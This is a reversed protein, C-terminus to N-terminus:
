GKRLPLFEAKPPFKRPFALLSAPSDCTFRMFITERPFIEFARLIYARHREAAPLTIEGALFEEYLPTGSLIHLNHIKLGDPKLAATYNLTSIIDEENEGPLGFILHVTIKIGKERLLFFAKEFEARGHGRRIRRLTKEQATQLGLEVWVDRHPTKYEAILRAKGADICDPRTSVILERFDELGLAYDYLKKLKEAPAHTGSYAQFYLLFNEAKYRKKLFAAGQTIQRKLSAFLSAEGGETEEAEQATYPAASGTSACFTCGGERRDKGRNPCSFGADVSIRYTKAGYRSALYASYPRFLPGPPLSM